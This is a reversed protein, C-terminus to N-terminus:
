LVLQISKLGVVTIQLKVLSAWNVWCYPKGVHIGSSLILGSVVTEWQQPLTRGRLQEESRSNVRQPMNPFHPCPVLHVQTIWCLYAPDRTSVRSSLFPPFWTSVCRSSLGTMHLLGPASLQCSHKSLSALHSTDASEGDDGGNLFFTKNDWLVKLYIFVDWGWVLWVRLWVVWLADTSNSIATLTPVTSSWLFNGMKLMSPKTCM